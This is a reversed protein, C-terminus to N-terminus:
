SRLIMLFPKGLGSLRAHPMGIGQGLYTGALRERFEIAELIQAAPLPLAAPEMRALALAVALVLCTVFALGALRRWMQLETM